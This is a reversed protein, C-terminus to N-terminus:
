NSGISSSSARRVRGAGALLRHRIDRAVSRCVRPFCRCARWAAASLSLASLRV